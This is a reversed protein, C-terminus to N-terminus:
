RKQSRLLYAEATKAINLLEKKYKFALAIEFIVLGLVSLEFSVTTLLALASIGLIFAVAWVASDRELINIKFYRRTFFAFLLVNVIWGSVFGIAAGIMGGTQNLGNMSFVPILLFSLVFGTLLSAFLILFNVWLRKKAFFYSGVPRSVNAIVFGIILIKLPDAGLLFDPTFFLELIQYAFVIMPASFLLSLILSYRTSRKMMRVVREERNVATLESLYPNLTYMLALGIYGLISAFTQGIRYIGLIAEILFVGILLENFRTFGLDIFAMGYAWKGFNFMEKFLTFDFLKFKNESKGIKRRERWVFIFGALGSSAYGLAFAYIVGEIGYGLGLFVIVFILYVTTFLIRMAMALDFRQFGNLVGQFVISVSLLPFIATMLQLIPTLWYDQFVNTAIFPSAFFFVVTFVLSVSIIVTSATSIATDVMDFKKRVLFDPLFRILSAGMGVSCLATLLDLLIKGVSYSGFLQAGVANAIIVTNIAALVVILLLTIYNYLTGSFVRASEDPLEVVGYM